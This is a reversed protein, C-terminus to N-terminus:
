GYVIQKLRKNMSTIISPNEQGPGSIGYIRSLFLLYVQMFIHWIDINMLLQIKTLYLNLNSVCLYGTSTM